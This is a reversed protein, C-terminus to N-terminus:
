EPRPDSIRWGVVDGAHRDMRPRVLGTALDVFAFVKQAKPEDLVKLFTGKPTRFVDGTEPHGVGETGLVLAAGNLPELMLEPDIYILALHSREGTLPVLYHNVYDRAPREVKLCPGTIGDLPATVISGPPVRHAPTM